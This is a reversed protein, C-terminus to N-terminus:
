WNYSSEWGAPIEQHTRFPSQREVLILNRVRLPVSGGRRRQHTLTWRYQSRNAGTLLGHLTGYNDEPIFTSYMILSRRHIVWRRIRTQHSSSAHRIFGLKLKFIFDLFLGLQFQFRRQRVREVHWSLWFTIKLRPASILLPLVHM